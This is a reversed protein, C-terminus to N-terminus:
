SSSFVYVYKQSFLKRKYPVVTAELVLSSGSSLNVVLLKRFLWSCRYIHCFQSQFAAEPYPLGTGV